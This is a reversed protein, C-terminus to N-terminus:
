LGTSENATLATSGDKSLTFLGGPLAYAERGTEANWVLTENPGSIAILRDSFQYGVRAFFSDFVMIPVGIRAASALDFRWIQYGSPPSSYGPQRRETVAVALEKGDSSYWFRRLEASELFTQRTSQGTGLDFSIVQVGRCSSSRQELCSASLLRDSSWALSAVSHGHGKLVRIQNAKVDRGDRRKLEYVRISGDDSGIALREGRGDIAQARVVSPTGRPASAQEAWEAVDWLQASGDRGLVLLNNGDPSFSIERIANGYQGVRGIVRGDSLSRLQVETDAKLVTALLRGGPHLALMELPSPITIGSRARQQDRTNWFSITQGAAVILRSGDASIAVDRVRGQVTIADGIPAASATHLLRVQNLAVTTALIEGNPSFAIEVADGARASFRIAQALPLRTDWLMLGDRAAVALRYGTPDLLVEGPVAKAPPPIAKGLQHGQLDAIRAKREVIMAARAAPAGPAFEETADLKHLQQPLAEANVVAVHRFFGLALKGDASYAVQSLNRASHVYRKLQPRAFVAQLLAARADVDDDPRRQAMAELGRMAEVGLLM